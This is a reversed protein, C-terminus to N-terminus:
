KGKLKEEFTPKSYDNRNRVGIDLCIKGNRIDLGMHRKLPIKPEKRLRVFKSRDRNQMVQVEGREWRELAQSARIQMTESVPLVELLFAQRFHHPSMGALEAFLAESIGRNDAAFMRQLRRRLEARPLTM